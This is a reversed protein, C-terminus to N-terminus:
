KKEGRPNQENVAPNREGFVIPIYQKWFIEVKYKAIQKKVDANSPNRELSSSILIGIMM